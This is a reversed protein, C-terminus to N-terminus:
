CMRCTANIRRPLVDRTGLDYNSHRRVSAFTAPIPTVTDEGGSFSTTTPPNSPVLNMLLENLSPSGRRTAAKETNSGTPCLTWIFTEKSAIWGVIKEEVHGTVVSEVQHFQEPDDLTFTHTEGNLFKVTLFKYENAQYGHSIDLWSLRRDFTAATYAREFKAATYLNSYSTPLEPQHGPAYQEHGHSLSSQFRPLLSNYTSNDMFLSPHMDGIGVSGTAFDAATGGSSVRCWDGSSVTFKEDFPALSEGTSMHLLLKATTLEINPCLENDEYQQWSSSPEGDCKRTGTTPEGANSAKLSSLLSNEFFDSSQTPIGVDGAGDFCLSPNSMLSRDSGGTTFRDRRGPGDEKGSLDHSYSIIMADPAIVNESPSSEM